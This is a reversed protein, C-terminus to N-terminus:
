ENLPDVEANERKSFSDPYKVMRFLHLFTCIGTLVFYMWFINYLDIEM